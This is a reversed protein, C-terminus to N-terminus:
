MNSTVSLKIPNNIIGVDKVTQNTYMREISRASRSSIVTPMHRKRAKLHANDITARV